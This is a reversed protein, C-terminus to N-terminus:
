SRLQEIQEATPTARRAGGEPSFGNILGTKVLPWADETWICGVLWDGSKIVTDSVQWDPGRYVYSEVVEAAGDTGKQHFMTIKRHKAFNWACKELAAAGVFDRHGDQAVAVDVRNHPYALGLTYRMEESAKIFNMKTASPDGIEDGAPAPAQTKVAREQDITARLIEAMLASDKLQNAM